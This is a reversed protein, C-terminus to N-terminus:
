SANNMVDKFRLKKPEETLGRSFSSLPSTWWQSERWPIHDSSRPCTCFSYAFSGPFTKQEYGSDRKCDACRRCAFPPLAMSGSGCVHNREAEARGIEDITYGQKSNLTQMYDAFSRFSSNRWGMNQSDRRAHRLGGLKRLHVYGIRAARLRTALTERNFQPHTEVPPHLM